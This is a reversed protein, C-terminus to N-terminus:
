MSCCYRSIKKELEEECELLAYLAWQYVAKKTKTVPEAM